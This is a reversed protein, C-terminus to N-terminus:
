LTYFNVILSSTGTGEAPNSHVEMSGGGAKKANSFSVKWNSHNKADVRIEVRGDFHLPVYPMTGSDGSGDIGNFSISEFGDGEVKYDFSVASSQLSIDSDDNLLEPYFDNVLAELTSFRERQKLGEPNGDSSISSMIIEERNGKLMLLIKECCEDERKSATLISQAFLKAKESTFQITAKANVIQQTTQDVKKKAEEEKKKAADAEKEKKKATKEASNARQRNVERGFLFGAAAFVIAEVSGFLDMLRIWQWDIVSVQKVLHKIFITFGILALFAAIFSLLKFIDFSKPQETEPNM